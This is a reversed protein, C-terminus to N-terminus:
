IKVFHNERLLSEFKALFQEAAIRTDGKALNFKEFTFDERM